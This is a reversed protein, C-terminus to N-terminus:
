WEKRLLDVALGKVLAPDVLHWEAARPANAGRAALERGLAKALSRFGRVHASEDPNGDLFSAIHALVLRTHPSIALAALEARGELEAEIAAPSLGNRALLGLVRWLNGTLPLYHFSDVLHAREHWRIMDLVAMDLSADPEDALVALKWDVDFATLPGGSKPIPDRLVVLKDERATQRRSRLGDAWERVSDMDVLFHDFLAVGALDGGYVGSLSRIERNEGVVEWCRTPLPLLDHQELETVSLRTLLLAEVPHGSRQGLLLHRNYRALHEPLGPGLPDVVDGVFTVSRVRPTGVVDRGLIERSVRRVDVLVETLPRPSDVNKYGHYLIRQLAGEFAIEKRIENQLGERAAARPDTAGPFRLALADLVLDAERLFGCDVLARALGSGLELDGLPDAASAWPGEFLEKWVGRVRNREDALLEKPFAKALDDLFHRTAGTGLLMRRWARRAQPDAPPSGDKGELMRRASIPNGLRTAMAALVLEGGSRRFAGLRARDAQLIDILGQVEEYPLGSGLFRGVLGRLDPDSARHKLADLLAPWAERARELDLLAEALRLSGLGPEDARQRLRECIPLAMAPQKAALLSTIWANAVLPHERAHAYLQAYVRQSEAPDVERLAFALGLWAWFSDPALQAATRFADTKEDGDPLLRARLYLADADNPASALRTELDHLLAGRRGRYRLVDQRLREAGVYGRRETLVEEAVGLAELVEGQDLLRRGAALRADLGDNPNPVDRLRGPVRVPSTGCGASVVAVLLVVAARPRRTLTGSIPM